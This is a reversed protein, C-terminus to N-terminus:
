LRNGFRSGVAKCWGGGGLLMHCIVKFYLLARHDEEEGVM